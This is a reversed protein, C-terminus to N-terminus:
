ETLARIIRHYDIEGREFRDYEAGNKKIIFTPVDDVNLQKMLKYNHYIDISTAIFHFAYESQIREMISKAHSCRPDSSHYILYLKM